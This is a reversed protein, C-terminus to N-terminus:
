HTHGMELWLEGKLYPNLRGRQGLSNIVECTKGPNHVKKATRKEYSYKGESFFEHNRMCIVFFNSTRTYHVLLINKYIERFTICRVVNSSIFNFM